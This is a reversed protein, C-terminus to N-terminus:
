AAKMSRRWYVAAGILGFVFWMTSACPEPIPRLAVSVNDIMTPNSADISATLAGAVSSLSASDGLVGFFGDTLRTREDIQVGAADGEKVVIRVWGGFPAEPTALDFGFGFLETSPSIDFKGLGLDWNFAQVLNLDTADHVGGVIDFTVGGIEFRGSPDLYDPYPGPIFLPSSAFDETLV